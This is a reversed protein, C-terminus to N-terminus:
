QNAVFFSGRALVNAMLDVIDYEYRGEQHVSITTGLLDGTGSLRLLNNQFLQDNRLLQWFAQGDGISTTLHAVAALTTGPKVTTTRDTILFTRPDFATGFWVQGTAPVDSADTILSGIVPGQGSFGSLTAAGTVLVVLVVGAIV